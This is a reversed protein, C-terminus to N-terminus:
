RTQAQHRWQYGPAFRALYYVFANLYSWLRFLWIRGQRITLVYLFLLCIFKYLVTYILGKDRCHESIARTYPTYCHSQVTKGAVWVRVM